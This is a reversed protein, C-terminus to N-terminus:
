KTEEKKFQSTFLKDFIQEDTEITQQQQQQVPTTIRLALKANTDRLTDITSQSNQVTSTLTEFVPIDKEIQEKLSVIAAAAKDPNQLDALIPQYDELRM